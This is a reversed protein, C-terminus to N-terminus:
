PKISQAIYILADIEEKIDSDTIEERFVLRFDYCNKGINYTVYIEAILVNFTDEIKKIFRYWHNNTDLRDGNGDYFSGHERLISDGPVYSGCYNSIIYTTKVYYARALHVFGSKAHQKLKSIGRRIKAERSVSVIKKLIDAIDYEYVPPFGSKILSNRQVFGETDYQVRTGERSSRHPSRSRSRSRSRDRSMAGERTRYRSRGHSTNDESSAVAQQFLQRETQVQDLLYTLQSLLVEAQRQAEMYHEQVLQQQPQVQRPQVLQQQPMQQPQMQQPQVLQQQQVQQPQQVATSYYYQPQTSAVVPTPQYAVPAPPLRHSIESVAYTDGENGNQDVYYSNAYTGEPNEGQAPAPHQNFAGHQFTSGQSNMRIHNIFKSKLKLM